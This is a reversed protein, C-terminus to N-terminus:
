IEVEFLGQQGRCPIPKALKEINKLVFGYRVWGSLPVLHKKEDRWFQKRTLYFKIEVLECIAIIKGLPKLEIKMARHFQFYQFADSDPNKGAHIALPGRYKIKRNRTEITKIGCAILNAWPQRITLAKIKM